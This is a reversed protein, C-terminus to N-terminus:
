LVSVKLVKLVRGSCLTSDPRALSPLEVVCESKVSKVSEWFM